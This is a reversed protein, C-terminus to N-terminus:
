AEVVEVEVEVGIHRLFDITVKNKTGLEVAAVVAVEVGM